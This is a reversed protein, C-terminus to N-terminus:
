RTNCFCNVIIVVIILTIITIIIKTRKTIKTNFIVLFYVCLMINIDLYLPCNCPPFLALCNPCPGGGKEPLAQFFVNKKYSTNGLNTCRLKTMFILILDHNAQYTPACMTLCRRFQNQGQFSCFLIYNKISQHFLM